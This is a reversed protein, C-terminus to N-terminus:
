LQSFAGLGEVTWGGSKLAVPDLTMVDKALLQDRRYDLKADLFTFNRYYVCTHVVISM